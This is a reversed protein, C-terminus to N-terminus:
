RHAELEVGAERAAQALANRFMVPNYRNWGWGFLYLGVLDISDGKVGAEGDRLSNFVGKGVNVHLGGHGLIRTEEGERQTEGRFVRRALELTDLRTKIEDIVRDHPGSYSQQSPKQSVRTEKVVGIADVARQVDPWTLVAPPESPAGNLWTYRNGSPHLSEPLITQGDRWRLEIHDFTQSDRPTYWPSAVPLAPEPEDQCIFVVGYGKRSGSQSVWPYGPPLGAMDLFEALPAADSKDFDVTRWGGPGNIVGYAPISPLGAKKLVRRAVELIEALDDRSQRQTQYPKWRHLPKKDQQHHSVLLVNAGWGHLTAAAAAANQWNPNAV